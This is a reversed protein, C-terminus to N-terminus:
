EYSINASGADFTATGAVTTLALQTVEGSLDISGGGSSVAASNSFGISWSATWIHATADLLTLIIHGHIVSTAGVDAGVLDFGTNHLAAASLVLVGSGLYGTTALGGSPGIQLILRATANVSVGALMVTIRKTGSSIGSYPVSTGSTTTTPTGLTIGGLGVNSLQKETGADDKAYILGDSKAYFVVQGASPTGPAAQETIVVTSM